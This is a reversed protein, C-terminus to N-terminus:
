KESNGNEVPFYSVVTFVSTGKVLSLWSLLGDYSFSISQNIDDTSVFITNQYKWKEWEYRKRPPFCSKQCALDLYLYLFTSKYFSVDFASIGVLSSIFVKGDMEEKMPRTKEMKWHCISPGLGDSFSILASIGTGVDWRVFVAGKKVPFFPFYVIFFNLFNM